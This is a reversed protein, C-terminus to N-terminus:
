RNTHRILDDLKATASGDDIAAAAAEIGQELGTVVGAVVLGAAANWVVMDRNPSPKGAFVQECLRRNVAADGGEIDEVGVLAFGYETPDVVFSRTSGDRVEIVEAPGTLSLEDLDGHGRVVWVLEADTGAVVAAIQEARARDPVGLLQRTLRGPHSLPGLVNFVSPVGLQARAPGVHRMAPHHARAFAFGLGVERVGAAVVEPSAEINVGLAELLDFSGSTSSAKRNGHKCVTAGAAAAVFSALTSVNFAAVRRRPAGGVGVIDITGGPLDLPTSAEFMADRMGLIEDTTEGKAALGVLFGAIQADTAHGALMAAVVHRAIDRQLDRGAVLDSLVDPWRIEPSADEQSM